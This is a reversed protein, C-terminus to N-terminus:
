RCLLGVGASGCVPVLGQLLPGLWCGPPSLNGVVVGSDSAVEWGPAVGNAPALHAVGKGASVWVCLISTMCLISPVLAQYVWLGGEVKRRMLLDAPGGAM